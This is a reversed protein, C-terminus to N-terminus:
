SRYPCLFSAASFSTSSKILESQTTRNIDSLLPTTTVSRKPRIPETPEVIVHPAFARIVSADNGATTLWSGAILVVYQHLSMPVGVLADRDRQTVDAKKATMIWATRTVLPVM